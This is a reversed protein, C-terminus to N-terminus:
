LYKDGWEEVFTSPSSRKDYSDGLVQHCQAPHDALYRLLDAESFTFLYRYDRFDKSSRQPDWQFGFPGLIEIWSYFHLSCAAALQIDMPIPKQDMNSDAELACLACSAPDSEDGM